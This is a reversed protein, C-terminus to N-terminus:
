KNYIFNDLIPLCLNKNWNLYYEGSITAYSSHKPIPFQLQTATYNKLSLATFGLSLMKYPTINVRVYPFTAAIVGPYNIFPLKSFSYLMSQILNRQLKEQLFINSKNYKSIMNLTNVGDLYVNDFNIGGISNIIRVLAVKNIVVYNDINIDFNNEITEILLREKGYLYSESLSGQGITPINVLTDKSLSTLRLNKSISDITLITTSYFQSKNNTNNNEVGILLLNNIGYIYEPTKELGYVTNINIIVVYFIICLLLHYKINM